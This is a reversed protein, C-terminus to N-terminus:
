SRSLLKAKLAQYETSLEPQLQAERFDFGFSRRSLSFIPPAQIRKAVGLTKFARWWTELDNIFDKATPFYHAALGPACGIQEELNGAAYWSLIDLPTARNWREVFAKFLFDHYDYFLPDGGSGVTQEASLEASPRITFVTEPLVPAPFVQENLYHGLEYVQHKWLDGLIALVGALDGYFTAYGVTIESKNANCSFGGGSASTLAALVTMRERAQINEYALPSFTPAAAAIARGDQDLLSMSGSDIPPVTQTIPVSLLQCHLNKAIKAAASITTASNFRSPLNVLNIKDPGLIDAYLAAAVASDVGGSLGITMKQIGIQTLFRSVGFSIAKYASAIDSMPSQSVPQESTFSKSQPHYDAILLAEKFPQANTLLTGDKQYIASSGDFSFINKGNNQVGTCNCFLIPIDNDQAQASFLKERRNIKRLSFPSSSLNCLIDAGHRRLIKPVKKFYNDTWSDECLLLGIKVTEERVKVSFPQLLNESLTNDELERKSLAYFHRSDDFERYNPLSCKISFPLTGCPLFKGDQVAFAANYKRYRGDENKKTTEAAINGFFLCIGNSHELLMNGYNQCETIFSNEEWLDGIFYGPLSMEPFLLIDVKEQRAHEIFSLMKSFNAAPRGPLIETQACAFRISM